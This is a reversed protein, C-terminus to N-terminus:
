CRWAIAREAELAGAVVCETLVVLVPPQCCTFGAVDVLLTEVGLRPVVAGAPQCFNSPFLVPDLPLVLALPLRDDPAPLDDDTRILGDTTCLRPEAGRPLLLLLPLLLERLPPPPRRYRNETVLQILRTYKKKGRPARHLRSVKAPSKKELRRTPGPKLGCGVEPPEAYTTRFYFNFHVV